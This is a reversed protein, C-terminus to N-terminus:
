GGKRLRKALGRNTAAYAPRPGAKDAVKYTDKFGSDRNTMTIRTGAKNLRGTGQTKNGSGKRYYDGSRGNFASALGPSMRGTAAILRENRAANPDKAIARRLYRTGSDKAITNAPGSVSSMPRGQVTSSAAVGGAGRGTKNNKGAM